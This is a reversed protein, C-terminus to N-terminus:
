RGGELRMAAAVSSIGTRELGIDKLTHDNLAHAGALRRRRRKEVALYGKLFASVFSPQVSASQDMSGSNTM